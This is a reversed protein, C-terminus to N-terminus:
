QIIPATTMFGDNNELNVSYIGRLSDAGANYIYHM